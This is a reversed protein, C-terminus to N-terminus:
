KTDHNNKQLRRKQSHSFSRSRPSLEKVLRMLIGERVGRDAIRLRKLPWTDCIGDLIAAGMLLLDARQVGICPHHIRQPPTMDLINQSTNRIDSINMFLGDIRQRDYRKLNLNIAALTTVTGSSGIMQVQNKQIHCEINHHASFEKLRKSTDDRIKQYISSEYTVDHHQESLTVVGYPLSIYDIVHIIPIPRRYFRRPELVKLWLIETSGGGIDFSISYPIRPNLIGSCGSLSLRAEEEPAIIELAIGTAKLVRELFEDRNGARRCAETAVARLKQVNHHRIKNQCAHLAQITRQIATETLHNTKQISEGLRVVKSYSDVVRFGRGEIQAILLRCSNTGLDIAAISPAQHARHDARHPNHLLPMLLISKEIPERLSTAHAESMGNGECPLM